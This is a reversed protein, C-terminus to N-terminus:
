ATLRAILTMADPVAKGDVFCAKVLANVEALTPRHAKFRALAARGATAAPTAGTSALFPNTGLQTGTALQMDIAPAQTAVV